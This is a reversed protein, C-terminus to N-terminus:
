NIDRARIGQDEAAVAEEPATAAPLGQRDVSRDVSGDLGGTGDGPKGVTSNAANAAHANGDVAKGDAETVGPYTSGMHAGTDGTSVWVRNRGAHKAQYLAVDAAALLETLGRGDTGSLAVGISVTMTITGAETDIATHAVQARLRDAAQAGEEAKTQPLLAVFEEGGFRGLVDYDRVEGSLLDAVGTLVEDGVLHGHVDNILKFHDIDVLLLALPADTRQARALETEAERQWTGANLLGTKADTRAATRLQDHVLSRQLVLVPPVALVALLLSVASAAAVLVGVCLEVLDITLAQRSWFTVGQLSAASLAAGFGVLLENVVIHLLGCALAVSVVVSLRSAQGAGAGGGAAVGGELISHFTASSLVGAIGRGAATVVRRYFFRKLRLQLLVAVPVYFLVAYVPPLLLAVAIGWAVLMDHVIGTLQGLRRVGEISAFACALLVGFAVLDAGAFSTRVLLLVGVAVDVAVLGAIYALVRRREQWVAWRGPTWTFTGGDTSPHDARAM